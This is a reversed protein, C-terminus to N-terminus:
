AQRADAAAIVAPLLRNFDDAGEYQAWHGIGPMVHFPAQPDAAHLMAKREDLFPAATIDHEGWIGALPRKLEPLIRALGDSQSLRRSKVRARRTNEIQMHLSLADIKTKDYFMLIGLNRRQLEAVSTGDMGPEARDLPSSGGKRRLGLGASGVITMSALRGRHRQAVYGGLLCGFSFGCLHFRAPSPLVRELGEAIIGGLSSETYPLPPTASDGLGPMDPAIVTFRRALPLVNRIWHVWSGYGGHLLLLPPGEGWLRWVMEGRGCPTGVMRAMREIRRIAAAPGDGSTLPDYTEVLSM